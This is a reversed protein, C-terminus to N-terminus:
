FYSNFPARGYRFSISILKVFTTRSKHCYITHTFVNLSLQNCSFRINLQIPDSAVQPATFIYLYLFTHRYSCTRVIYYSDAASLPFSRFHYTLSSDEDRVPPVNVRHAAPQPPIQWRGDDSGISGIM